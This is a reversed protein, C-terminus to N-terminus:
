RTLSFFVCMHIILKLQKNTKENSRFYLLRNDCVYNQYSLCLQKLQVFPFYNDM